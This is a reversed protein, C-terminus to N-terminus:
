RNRDTDAESPIGYGKMLSWGSLTNANSAVVKRAKRKRCVNDREEANV